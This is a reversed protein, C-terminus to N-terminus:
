TRTISPTSRARHRVRASASAAKRRRRCSAGPRGHAVGVDECASPEDRHHPDDTAEQTELEVGAAAARQEDQGDDRDDAGHNPEPSWRGRRGSTPAPASPRDLLEDIPQWWGSIFEEPLTNYVALAPPTDAVMQARM